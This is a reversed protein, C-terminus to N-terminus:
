RKPAAWFGGFEHSALLYQKKEKKKSELDLKSPFLFFAPLVIDKESASSIGWKVADAFSKFTRAIVRPYTMKEGPYLKEIKDWSIMANEITKKLIPHGSKSCILGNNPYIATSIGPLYHPPELVVLFDFRACFDDFSRLCFVDHDSYIGGQEFLILSRLLDSKEAWNETRDLFPAISSIDLEQILRQKMWPFPPDTEKRDTWFNFSWDPHHEKWSKFNALSKSPIKEPGLWIFHIIKPIKREEQISSSFLRGENKKYCNRYYELENLDQSSLFKEVGYRNMEM